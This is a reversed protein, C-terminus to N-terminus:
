FFPLGSEKTTELNSEIIKGILEREENSLMFADEYSIGGRMYWCMQLLEKRIAKSEKDYQAILDVIEENTLTL